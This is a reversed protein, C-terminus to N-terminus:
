QYAIHEGIGKSAGCVLVHQGKVMTEPDFGDFTQIVYQWLYPLLVLVGVLYVWRGMKKGCGGVRRASLFFSLLFILYKNLFANERTKM